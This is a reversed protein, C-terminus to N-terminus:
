ANRAGGGALDLSLLPAGDASLVRVRNYPLPEIPLYRNDLQRSKGETFMQSEVLIYSEEPQVMLSVGIAGSRGDTQYNFTAADDTM